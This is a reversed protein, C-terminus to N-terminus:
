FPQIHLDSALLLKEVLFSSGSEARLCVFAHVYGHLEFSHM